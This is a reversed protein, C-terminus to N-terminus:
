DIHSFADRRMQETKARAQAIGAMGAAVFAPNTKGPKPKPPNMRLEAAALETNMKDQMQSIRMLQDATRAKAAESSGSPLSSGIGGFTTYQNCLGLDKEIAPAIPCKLILKGGICETTCGERSM